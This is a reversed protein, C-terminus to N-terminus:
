LGFWQGNLHDLRLRLAEHYAEMACLQTKMLRLQLPHVDAAKESDLFNQFKLIRVILGENEANLRDIFFDGVKDYTEEFIDPKCPNFEGKVGQIIYDGVEAKMVGELTEIYIVTNNHSATGNNQIIWDVIGNMCAGDDNNTEFHMASIEIPKKRYKKM